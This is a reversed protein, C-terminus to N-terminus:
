TLLACGNEQNGHLSFTQAINGTFTVKVPGHTIVLGPEGTNARGTPGFALWNNGVGVFRGTGDARSVNVTSGSLDRTFSKGNVPNRFTLVLPGFVTDTTSVLTGDKKTVTTSIDTERNEVVTIDIPFSCFTAPM